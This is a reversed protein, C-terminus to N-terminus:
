GRLLALVAQPASNAQAMAALSAQQLVQAKTLNAAEQAVDTDRIQSEASSFSTVQSQALSIAYGLQNEGKGVAAQASGLKAVATAIAAVAQEAGAQTDISISGSDGNTQSNFTKAVGGNIGNGNASSGVSVSFSTLSSLFNIEEVGGVNEKVAVISRLTANNSQQLQSNIYSIASDINAGNQATSSNQLTITLSQATGSSSNASITVSQDDSGFTMGTYSLYGTGDVGISSTGSADLANVKSVGSTLGTFTGGTNLGFGLDTTSGTPGFEDLRFNTGNTSSVKLHTGTSDTSAQLGAQQLTTNASFAQNLTDVVSTLSPGTGTVGTSLSAAGLGLASAVSGPDSTLQIGSSVGKTQSAISIAGGATLTFINASTSTGLAKQAATNLSAVVQAMTPGTTTGSNNGASLGLSQLATTSGGLNVNASSGTATSTIVLAGSSNFSVTAGVSNATLQSNIFSQVASQTETASHTDTTFDITATHTGDSITFTSAASGDQSTGGTLGLAAAANAHTGTADVTIATGTGTTSSTLTLTGSSDFAATVGTLHSQIYSAVASQTETTGSLGAFSVTQASGSGVTVSLTSADTGHQTGSTTLGLLTAAAGTNVALDQSQGTATSTISFTGTASDYAATAGTLQSTIESAVNAGSENSALHTDGTFDVYQTTGNVVVALRQSTGATGTTTGTNTATLGVDQSGQTNTITIAAGTGTASTTLQLVYSGGVYAVQAQVAGSHSSSITAAVEGLSTCSSINYSNGNITLSDGTLTLGSESSLGPGANYTAATVLGATDFSGTGAGMAAGTYVASQATLAATNITASAGLAAGTYTGSTALLANTNVTASAGLATGTVAAATTTASALTATFSNGDITFGLSAGGAASSSGASGTFTAATADGGAMNLTVTNGPAGTGTATQTATFGLGAHTVTLTSDSDAIPDTLTLTTATGSTGTTVKAVQVNTGWGMAEDIQNNIYKVVNAVSENTAQNADNAFNISIATGNVTLNLTPPSTQTDVTNSSTAGITGSTLTAAQPLSATVTGTAAASLGLSQSTANAAINLDSSSNSVTDVLTIGNSSNVSAIKVDSSWGMQADVASNIYSVVDAVSETAGKNSDNAFNVNVTTGNVTLALSTSGMSATDVTTLATGTITPGAGGTAGGNLSFGLSTLGSSTISPASQATLTSYYAPNSVASSTNFNGLGLVDATDGTAQVSFTAGTSSTFVLSSGSTGSLTIGAAQLDSNRSAQTQLDNIAADVTTDSASLTLSVPSALGAGSIQVTVATPNAFTTGSTATAAGTVTTQIVAGTSGSSFDGMLANAMQDGAQVQFGTASSTFALEQGGSADTNVSAVIGANKFAQASQSSGTSATQIATNIATVLSNMDSVGSLNVAVGINSNDSFGPGSFYFMTTGATATSNASNEVIQEVTHTSSGSGIDQSGAVVQYGTLGLSQADVTSSTLDVNVVSDALVEASDSGSGGGIYVSLSKALSGGTNLGISQAQRDIEGVLSQFESNLVSRDGTFTGSASQTALTQLRDLMTSINSIGGDMIQLQSVGDNANRVGQNLESIDNRYTNAIALGAADDGSQNIRYGSTLQQITNSQFKGIVSLNEQAVLSNVNTQISFM